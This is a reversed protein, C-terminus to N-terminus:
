RLYVNFMKTYPIQSSCVADECGSGRPLPTVSSQLQITGPHPPAGSGQVTGLHPSAGTWSPGLWFAAASFPLITGEPVAVSVSEESILSPPESGELCLLSQVHIEWM